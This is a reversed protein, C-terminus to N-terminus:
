QDTLSRVKTTGVFEALRFKQIKGSGTLPWDEIEFWRTPTKQPSLRQRLFTRLEAPIPRADPTPRFFCAVEEGWRAHEIGVVAVEAVAPHQLLAAEIEAPFINEGGRIIMDKIRGTIRLFGREDFTGVDGTHLWGELDICDRTAQPNDHYGAMVNYGRCCIEGEEGLACLRNDAINRVSVEMHPYPQGLTGRPQRGNKDPWTGAIGPCLETQGYIIQVDAGSAAHFRRMLEPAVAAGGCLISRFSRLSLGQREAAELLAVLMTPVAVAFEPRERGIVEVLMNADFEPALFLAAGTSLAGLVLIGCGATHFLPMFHLIKTGAEVGCRGVVDFGNRILAAQRLQAGKPFGTTGSTYQIQVIDAAAAQRSPAPTTQRPTDAVGEIPWRCDHAILGECAAAVVPALATTRARESFYIAGSGSHELIYRLEPAAYSPNVTVLVLGAMAAALELMVWEPSNSAFVAIKAGAPHREALLAAIAEVREALEGYHWRRGASGDPRLEMLALLDPSTSARKALLAAITEDLRPPGGQAPFYAKELSLEYM